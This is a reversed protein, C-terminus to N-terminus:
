LAAVLVKKFFAFIVLARSVDGRRICTWLFLLCAATLDTFNIAESLPCLLKHHLHHKIHYQVQGQLGQPIALNRVQNLIIKKQFLLYKTINDM